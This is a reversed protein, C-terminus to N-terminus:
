SKQRNITCGKSTTKTYPVDEGALLANLVPGLYQEEMNGCDTPSGPVQEFGGMYRLVQDEDIVYFHPTTQANYADAIKNGPDKLISYPFKVKEAYTRVQEVSENHNSNIALFVVEPKEATSESDDAAAAAPDDAYELVKGYKPVFTKMVRTYGTKETYKDWPCNISQFQLVVIKGKYDALKHKNGFVDTLEFQPAAEGIAPDTRAQKKDGAETATVLALGLAVAVALGVSAFITSRKM